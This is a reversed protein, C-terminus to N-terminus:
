AQRESKELQSIARRMSLRILGAPADHRAVAVLLGIPSAHVMFSYRDTEIWAQNVAGQRLEEFLRQLTDYANSLLAGLKEVNVEVVFNDAITIGDVALLASGVVGETATLQALIAQITTSEAGKV